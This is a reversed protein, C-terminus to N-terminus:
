ARELEDGRGVDLLSDAGRVFSPFGLMVGGNFVEHFCEWSLDNEAM